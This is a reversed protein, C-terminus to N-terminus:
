RGDPRCGATMLIRIVEPDGQLEVALHLLSRGDSLRYNLLHNVTEQDSPWPELNTTSSIPTLSLKPSEPESFFRIPLLYIVTPRTQCAVTASRVANVSLPLEPM